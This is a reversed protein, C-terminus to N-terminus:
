IDLTQVKNLYKSVVKSQNKVTLELTSRTIKPSHKPGRWPVVLVGKNSYYSTNLSNNLTAPRMIFQHWPHYHKTFYDGMNNKGPEWYIHFQGQLVRDKIFHFQMNMTRSSTQKITDNFFDAAM